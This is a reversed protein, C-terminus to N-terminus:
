HRPCGQWGRAGARAATIVFEVKLAPAVETKASDREAPLSAGRERGSHVRKILEKVKNQKTNSAGKRPLDKM